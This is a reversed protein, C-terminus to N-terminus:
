DTMAPLNACVPPVGISSIIPQHKRSVVVLVNIMALALRKPESVLLVSLGPLLWVAVDAGLHDMDMRKGRSCFWRLPNAFIGMLIKQRFDGILPGLTPGCVASIGWISMAYAQKAPSYMDTLSAGGTALVPSGM